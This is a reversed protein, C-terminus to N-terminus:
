FHPDDDRLRQALFQAVDGGRKFTLRGGHERELYDAISYRLYEVFMATELLFIEEAAAIMELHLATARRQADDQQRDLSYSLSARCRKFARAWGMVARRLEKHRAEWIANDVIGKEWARYEAKTHLATSNRYPTEACPDPHVKAGGPFAIIQASM